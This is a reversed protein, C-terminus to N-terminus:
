RTLIMTKIRDGEILRYSAERSAPRLGAQLFWNHFGYIM